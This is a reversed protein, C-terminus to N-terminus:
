FGPTQTPDNGGHIALFRRIDRYAYEVQRKLKGIDSQLDDDDPLNLNRFHEIAKWLADQADFIIDTDPVARPPRKPRPVGGGGGGQQNFPSTGWLNPAGASTKEYM